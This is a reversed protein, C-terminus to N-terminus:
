DFYKEIHDKIIEMLEEKGDTLEVEGALYHHIIQDIRQDYTKLVEDLNLEREIFQKIDIYAYDIQLKGRLKEKEETIDYIGVDVNNHFPQDIKLICKRM